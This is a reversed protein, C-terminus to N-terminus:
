EHDIIENWIKVKEKSKSKVKCKRAFVNKVCISEYSSIKVKYVFVEDYISLSVKSRNRVSSCSFLM